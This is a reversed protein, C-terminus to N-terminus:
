CAIKVIAIVVVIIIGGAIMYKIKSPVKECYWKWAAKIKEIVTKM